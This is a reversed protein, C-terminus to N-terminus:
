RWDCLVQCRCRLYLCVCLLLRFLCPICFPSGSHPLRSVGVNSRGLVAVEPSEAPPLQSFKGMTFRLIPAPAFLKSSLHVHKQSPFPANPNLRLATPLSPATRAMSQPSLRSSRPDGFNRTLKDRWFVTRCFAGSAEVVAQGDKAVKLVDRVVWAEGTWSTELGDVECCGRIRRESFVGELSRPELRQGGFEM